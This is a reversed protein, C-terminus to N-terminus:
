NSDYQGGGEGLLYIEVFIQVTTLLALFQALSPASHHKVSQISQNSWWPFVNWPFDDFIWRWLSTLAFHLHPPPGGARPPHSNLLNMKKSILNSIEIYKIYNYFSISRAVGAAGGKRRYYWFFPNKKYLIKIRLFFVYVTSFYTFLTACLYFVILHAM